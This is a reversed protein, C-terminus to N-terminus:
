YATWPGGNVRYWRRGCADTLYEYAAPAAQPVAVPVVAAPPPPTNVAQELLDVRKGLGEVKRDLAGVKDALQGVSDALKDVRGGLAAMDAKTAYGSLEQRLFKAQPADGANYSVTGFTFKEPPVIGAKIISGPAYFAQPFPMSEVLVKVTHTTGKNLTVVSTTKVGDVENGLPVEADEFPTVKLVSGVVHATPKLVAGVDLTTMPPVPTVVTVTVPAPVGPTAPDPTPTVVPAAPPPTDVAPAPAAVQARVTSTVTLVVLVVAPLSKLM